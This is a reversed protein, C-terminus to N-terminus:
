GADRLAKAFGLRDKERTLIQVSTGVVFNAGRHPRFWDLHYKDNLERLVSATHGNEIVFDFIGHDAYSKGKYISGIVQASFPLLLSTLLRMELLCLPWVM